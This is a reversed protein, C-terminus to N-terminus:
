YIGEFTIIYDRIHKGRYFLSEHFPYKPNVPYHAIGIEKNIFKAWDGYRKVISGREKIEQKICSRIDNDIQKATEIIKPTIYKKHIDNILTM